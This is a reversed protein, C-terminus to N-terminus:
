QRIAIQGSGWHWLVNLSTTAGIISSSTRMLWVCTCGDTLIVLGYSNKPRMERELPDRAGQITNFIKWHALDETSWKSWDPMFVKSMEQPATHRSSRVHWMYYCQIFTCAVHLLVTCECTSTCTHTYTKHICYLLQSVYQMGPDKAHQLSTPRLWILGRGWWTLHLFRLEGIIKKRLSM